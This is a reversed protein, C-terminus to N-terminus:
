ELLGEINAESIFSEYAVISEEKDKKFKTQYQTIAEEKSIRNALCKWLFTAKEDLEFYLDTATNLIISKEDIETFYCDKNIKLM